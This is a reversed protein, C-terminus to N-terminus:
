CSCIPRAELFKAIGKQFEKIIRAKVADQSLSHWLEIKCQTFSTSGKRQILGGAWCMSNRQRERTITSTVLLAKRNVGGHQEHTTPVERM